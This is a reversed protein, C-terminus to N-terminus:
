LCYPFHVFRQSRLTTGHNRLNFNSQMTDLSLSAYHPTSIFLYIFLYYDCAQMVFHVLCM